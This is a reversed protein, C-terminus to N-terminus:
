RRRRKQGITQIELSVASETVNDSSSIKGKKRSDGLIRQYVCIHMCYQFLCYFLNNYEEM